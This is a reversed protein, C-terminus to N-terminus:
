RPIIQAAWADLLMILRDFPHTGPVLLDAFAATPEIHLNHMPLVTQELQHLTFELRRGREQDRALRRERRTAEDASVFLTLDALARLPAYSLAFIGEIVILPAPDLPQTGRRTHTAFDYRPASPVRRGALLEATHQTLLDHDVAAPEDYNITRRVAEDLASQDRYYDDAHIMRLSSGIRAALM